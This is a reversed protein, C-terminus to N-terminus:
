CAGAMHLDQTALIDYVCDIRDINSKLSACAAEAQGGTILSETLRRRREGRPDEPELKMSLFGALPLCSAM